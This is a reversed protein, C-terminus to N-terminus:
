ASSTALYARFGASAIPWTSPFDHQQCENDPFPGFGWRDPRAGDVSKKDPDISALQFEWLEEPAPTNWVLGLWGVPKLVRQVEAAPRRWPSGPGPEASLVADVSHDDLPIQDATCHHPVAAPHDRRLVDLMHSDPDVAHVAMGRELMTGTLQGTGAGLEAVVRADRTLWAVADAHHGPWHTAYDKAVEGFVLSRAPGAPTIV